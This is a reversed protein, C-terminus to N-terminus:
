VIDQNTAQAGLGEFAWSPSTNIPGLEIRTTRPFAAVEAACWVTRHLCRVIWHGQGPHRAMPETLRDNASDAKAGSLRTHCRVTRARRWLAM